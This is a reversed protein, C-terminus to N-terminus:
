HKSNIIFEIIKPILLEYKVMYKKLKFLYVRYSDLNRIM